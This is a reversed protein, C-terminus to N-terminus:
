GSTGVSGGEDAIRVGKEGLLEAIKVYNAGMTTVTVDGGDRRLRIRGGWGYRRPVAEAIEGYPVDLTWRGVLVPTYLHVGSDGLEIRSM